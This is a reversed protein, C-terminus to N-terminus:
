LADAPTQETCVFTLYANREDVRDVSDIGFIRGTGQFKFRHSTKISHGGRITIKHTSLAKLQRANFLERGSLPEVHAWLTGLVIWTQVPQNM